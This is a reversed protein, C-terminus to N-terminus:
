LIQTPDDEDVTLPGDDEEDSDLQTLDIVHPPARETAVLQTALQSFPVAASTLGVLADVTTKANQDIAAALPSPVPTLALASAPIFLSTTSALSHMPTPGVFSAGVIQQPTTPPNTLYQFPSDMHTVKFRRRIATVLAEDPGFIEEISYNSTVVIKEPRATIAGGKIEAVFAYRDAWIKIFHSLVKHNHDFDDMIVFRHKSPNYGDWWKNCNKFYAGPYDQRAKRSKGVGPPGWIWVGTTDNADSPMVANDKAIARCNGYHTVYIQDDVDDLLGSECATRAKKWREKEAEAGKRGGTTDRIVGYEDFKGGKTCYAFNSEHDGKAVEFFTRPVLKLLASRRKKELLQVYCQFHTQGTTPCVEDGWVCYEAIEQLGELQNLAQERTPRPTGDEHYNGGYFLTFVWNKANPETAAAM